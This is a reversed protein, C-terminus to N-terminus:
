AGNGNSGNESVTSEGGAEIKSADARPRQGKSHRKSRSWAFWAAASVVVAAVVAAMLAGRSGAGGRAPGESGQHNREAAPASEGKMRVVDYEYVHVARSREPKGGPAAEPTGEILTVALGETAYSDPGAFPFSQDVVFVLRMRRWQALAEAFAAVPLPGGARLLGEATFKAATARAQLGREVPEDSVVLGTVRAGTEAALREVAGRLREGEVLGAYSLAVREPVGPGAVVLVVLDYPVREAAPAARAAASPRGSLALGMAAVSVARGLRLVHRRVALM